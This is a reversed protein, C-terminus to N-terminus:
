DGLSDLLRTVQARLDECKLDRAFRLASNPDPKARLGALTEADRKCDGAIDARQPIAPKDPAQRQQEKTPPMGLSDMLLELQPRLDECALERSFRAVQKVSPDLRLRALKAADAKCVQDSSTPAAEPAEDTELTVKRQRSGLALEEPGHQTKDQQAAGPPVGSRSQSEPGTKTTGTATLKALQASALNAYYGSGHAALFARWAQLSGVREAMMYDAAVEANPDGIAAEAPGKSANPAPVLSIEDGGLSGYVFPEQRNSTSAMVEDRVKGLAIRIDVGPEVIHKVLAATFPSNPGAGDFSVSGAKAAYAILAGAGTSEVGILRGAVARKAGARASDRLFPNDRCADLIILSLKKASQTAQIIRDLPVTEDEVDNENALKADVPVLYNVGGYELGHGSYYVVVIDAESAAILFERIARKFEVVGIDRRVDVLDFGAKTLLAGIANADNVTNALVDAHAYKANGVILAVRREAMAQSSMISALMLACVIPLMHRVLANM